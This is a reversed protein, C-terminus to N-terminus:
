GAFGSRRNANDPVPYSMGNLFPRGNADNRLTQLIPDSPFGLSWLSGERYSKELWYVAKEGEKLGILILAVAYPDCSITRTGPKTMIDLLESARQRQGTVAYTYGLTGRVVPHQPISAALAEIDPVNSVPEDLHISALAEVADAVSSSQGSARFHEIHRLSNAYEGALYLSWCYLGMADSSLPDQQAAILLLSSAKMVNGGAINLMAEGMMSRSCHPRYKMVEDFGERAGRWDRKQVLNLWAAAGRAEHLEADIELAKESAAQASAYSAPANPFGWLSEAILAHSLGAFASANGPNLDIAERFYRVIVNLNSNSLTEWMRYALAVLETSRRKAQIPILSFNLTERRQDLERLAFPIQLIAPRLIEPPEIPGVRGWNRM